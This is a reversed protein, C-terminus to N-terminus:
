RERADNQRTTSLRQLQRVGCDRRTGHVDPLRLSEVAGVRALVKRKRRPAGAPLVPLVPRATGGHVKPQRAPNPLLPM